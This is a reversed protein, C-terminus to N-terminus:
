PEASGTIQGLVQRALAQATPALDPNEQAASWSLGLLATEVVLAEYLAQKREAGMSVFGPAAGLTDNISWRLRAVARDPLEHGQLISRALGVTAALATAINNKRDKALAHFTAGVASRLQAREAEDVNLAAVFADVTPHGPTAPRFDTLALARRSRVPPAAPATPAAQEQKQWRQWGLRQIDASIMTDLMASTPNGFQTGTFPNAYPSQAWGLRPLCLAVTLIFASRM